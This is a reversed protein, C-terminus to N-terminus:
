LKLPDLIKDAAKKNCQSIHYPGSVLGELTAGEKLPIPMEVDDNFMGLEKRFLQKHKLLILKVNDQFEKRFETSIDAEALSRNDNNFGAQFPVPDILTEEIITDALQVTFCAESYPDKAQM